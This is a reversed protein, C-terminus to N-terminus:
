LMIWDEGGTVLRLPPKLRFSHSRYPLTSVVDEKFFDGAAVITPSDRGFIHGRSHGKGSKERHSDRAIDLTNFDHLTGPFLHKTGYIRSPTAFFGTDLDTICRTYRVGWQDWPIIVPESTTQLPDCQFGFTEASAFFALGLVRPPDNQAQYACNITYIGALPSVQFPRDDPSPPHGSYVGRVSFKSITFSARVGAGAHEPLRFTALHLPDHPNTGESTLSQSGLDYLRVGLSTPGTETILFRTSSVWVFHQDDYPLIM